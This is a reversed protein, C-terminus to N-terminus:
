LLAELVDEIKQCHSLVGYNMWTFFDVEHVNQNRVADLSRWQSTELVEREEGERISHRKDFTVFLHDAQLLSLQDLRFPVKRQNGALQCAIPDAKLGLDKHLIPGTYGHESSSYLSMGLASIRLFSVTKGKTKPKLREKAVCVKQQYEAIVDNVMDMQGLLDALTRLTLRWDEGYHKIIYTPAFENLSKSSFWRDSGGDLVIFDPKYVSLQDVDKSGLDYVPVHELGLYDQKGWQDHYCQMIPTIGLALLFDELFPAFIRLNGRHNRRYQGPSIGVEQKFRRSFYYENQFGVSEAIDSLRDHSALLLKKSRDIRVHNMFQLPNQGTLEKFTRSYQWRSVDFMDALMDVTLQESYHHKVYDISHEVSQRLNREEFTGINQEFIFLLLEQFRVHIHFFRLPDQRKFQQIMNELYAISQSFPTCRFEGALPFPGVHGQQFDNSAEARTGEAKCTLQYFHIGGLGSAIISASHPPILYSRGKELSLAHHEITLRGSGNTVFLLIYAEGWEILQEWGTQEKVQEIKKLRYTWSYPQIHDLDNM